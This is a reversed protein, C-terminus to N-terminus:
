LPSDPPKLSPSLRYDSDYKGVFTTKQHLAWLTIFNVRLAPCLMPVHKDSTEAAQQLFQMNRSTSVLSVSPMALLVWGNNAYTKEKIAFLTSFLM